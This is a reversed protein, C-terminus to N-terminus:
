KEEVDFMTVGILVKVFVYENNYDQPNFQLPQKWAIKVSWFDSPLLSILFDKNGLPVSLPYFTNIMKMVSTCLYTQGNVLLMLKAAVPPIEHESDGVSLQFLPTMEKRSLPTIVADDGQQRIRYKLIYYLHTSPALTNIRFAEIKIGHIGLEYEPPTIHKKQSLHKKDEKDLIHEYKRHFELQRKYADESVVFFEKEETGEPNFLQSDYFTLDQEM